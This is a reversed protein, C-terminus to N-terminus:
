RGAFQPKRKEKFAALGENRDFSLNHHACVDQEMRLAVDIPQEVSDDILRKMRHLGLPSKEALAAALSNVRARLQDDPVVDAVIGWDRMTQPSVAEATFMMYKARNVGLKRALRVSGGAGPLLGYRAHADGFKASEASVVIDCCLVIELGGAVAIGNVAAITPRDLQEIRQLTRGLFSLFRANVIEGDEMKSFEEAAKLDGGACFARGAGTIVLVRVGPDAEIADLVHSIESVMEPNVSNLLDPRDLTLWVAGSQREVSIMTYDMPTFSAQTPTITM